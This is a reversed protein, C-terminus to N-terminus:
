SFFHILRSEASEEEFVIQNRLYSTWVWSFARCFRRIDEPSSTYKVPTGSIHYCAYWEVRTKHRYLCWDGVAVTPRYEALNRSEIRSGTDSQFDNSLAMEAFRSKIGALQYLATERKRLSIPSNDLAYLAIGRRDDYSVESGRRRMQKVKKAIGLGDFIPNILINSNSLCVLKLAQRGLLERNRNITEYCNLLADYENKLPREHTEPIFEDYILVEIQSADFGRLNSVTSLALTIGALRPPEENESEIFWGSNKPSISDITMQIDPHNRLIPKMPSFDPKNIIDLQSQTRRMYAFPVGETVVTELAGYTKGTGRGGWVFTFPHARDHIIPAMNVFGSDLYLSM